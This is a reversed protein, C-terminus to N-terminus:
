SSFPGRGYDHSRESGQVEVLTETGMIGPLKTAKSVARFLERVDRSQLFAVVDFRGFVAYADTVLTVRKLEQALNVAKRVRGGSRILVVARIM